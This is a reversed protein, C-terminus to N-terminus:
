LNILQDLLKNLATNINVIARHINLLKFDHFAIKAHNFTFEVYCQLCKVLTPSNNKLATNVREVIQLDVPRIPASLELYM